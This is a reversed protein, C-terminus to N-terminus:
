CQILILHPIKAVSRAGKKSIIGEKDLHNIINGGIIQVSDMLPINKRIIKSAEELPLKDGKYFSEPVRLCIKGESFTKNLLESDCCSLFKKNGSVHIKLFVFQNM